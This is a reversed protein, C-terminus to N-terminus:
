LHPEEEEEEEKEDGGGKRYVADRGSDRRETLRRSNSSVMAVVVANQRAGRPTGGGGVRARIEYLALVDHNSTTNGNRNARDRSGTTFSHTCPAYIGDVGGVVVVIFGIDYRTLYCLPTLSVSVVSRCSRIELYSHLSRSVMVSCFFPSLRIDFLNKQQQQM